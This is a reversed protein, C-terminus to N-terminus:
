DRGRPLEQSYLLEAEPTLMIFEKALGAMDYWLDSDWYNRGLKSPTMLYTMEGGICEICDLYYLEKTLKSIFTM